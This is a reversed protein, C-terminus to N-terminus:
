FLCELLLLILNYISQVYFLMDKKAIFVIRSQVAYALVINNGEVQMSMSYCVLISWIKVSLLVIKDSTSKEADNTTHQIKRTPFNGKLMVMKYLGRLM